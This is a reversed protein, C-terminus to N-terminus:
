KKHKPKQYPKAPGKPGDPQYSDPQEYEKKNKLKQRPPVPQSLLQYSVQYKGAIYRWDRGSIRYEFFERPERHLRAALNIGIFLDDDSLGRNRWCFIVEPSTDYYECLFRAVSVDQFDSDNMVLVSSYKQKHRNSMYKGHTNPPLGLEKATRGWGYQKKQKWVMDSRPTANENIFCVAEM